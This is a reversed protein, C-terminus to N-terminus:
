RPWDKMWARTAESNFVELGASQTEDDVIPRVGPYREAYQASLRDAEVRILERLEDHATRGYTNLVFLTLASMEARVMLLQEFMERYVEARPTQANMAGTIRGVQVNAWQCLETLARVYVVQRPDADEIEPIPDNKEDPM